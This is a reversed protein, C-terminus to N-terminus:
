LFSATVFTAEDAKTYGEFVLAHLSRVCRDNEFVRAQQMADLVLKIANDLDLKWKVCVFHMVVQVPRDGYLAQQYGMFHQAVELEDARTQPPTYARGQKRNFRPRRKARPPGEITVSVITNM